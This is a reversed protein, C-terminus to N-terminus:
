LHRDALWTMTLYNLGGSGRKTPKSRKFYQLLFIHVESGVSTMIYSGAVILQLGSSDGACGALTGNRFYLIRFIVPTQYEHLGQSITVLTM